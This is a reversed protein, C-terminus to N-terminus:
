IGMLSEVINEMKMGRSGKILIKDNKNAIEKLEECLQSQNDFHKKYISEKVYKNTIKTETGYTMIANINIDNCKKAIERHQNESSTGLELMDGLIFIKNGRGSFANLYDLAALTSELNANYSDDIIIYSGNNKVECRGKPPTFTHIRDEIADWEVQLEKAVACCAIINKAFSLNSSKIKLEHTNITLSLTGDNENHIDTPYDCNSSVGYTIKKGEFSISSVRKDAENVFSIGDKLSKFLAGKTSAITEINKFGELHAPAINTILGHTPKTINCLKQIDGPQNAGMEIISAGHYKTIQLLTLPLSISTNFNEETAHIDFKASLIHKLLEKTSTKGNSGTIGIVPINFRDRWITAIESILGIPNSNLFQREIKENQIQHVIAFSAGRNLADKTFENGDFKEGKIAIYLDNEKINRSDTSIGNIKYDITKKTLDCLIKKFENSNPLDIRM